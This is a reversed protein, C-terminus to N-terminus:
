SRRAGILWMASGFQVGDGTEHEQMTQMLALLATRRRTEDLDAVLWGLQGLVFDHAARATAGFTMPRRADSLAIDDFGAATLLRVVRDPDSMSFPHPADPPPAPLDRGASLAGTFATFWENESRGQWVAFAVRGGPRLAGAIRAHAAAPDGFFMTGTRSIAIDFTEPEFRHVQADAQLFSVNALGAQEARTRAVGLMASSLDVGLASGSSALRAADRTTQGTGCGIDLVTDDLRIAALELLLQDYGAISADYDDAHSAWYQGESGDWATLQATNAAAVPVAAIDSM